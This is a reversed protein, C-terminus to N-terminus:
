DGLTQAHGLGIDSFHNGCFHRKSYRLFILNKGNLTDSAICSTQNAEHSDRLLQRRQNATFKLIPSKPKEINRIYLEKSMENLSTSRTLYQM